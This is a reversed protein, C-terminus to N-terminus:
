TPTVKGQSLTDEGMVDHDNQFATMGTRYEIRRTEREFTGCCGSRQVFDMM